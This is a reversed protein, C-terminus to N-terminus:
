QGEIMVMAPPDSGAEQFIAPDQLWWRLLVAIVVLVSVGEIARVLRDIPLRDIPRGVLTLLHRRRSAISGHRWTFRKMAVGNVGAVAMLASRM